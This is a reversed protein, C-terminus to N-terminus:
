RIEGYYAQRYIEALEQVLPFRPNTITTQDEFAKEALVPIEQLFINEKVGCEAITMPMGLKKMLAYIAQCLNDVGEGVTGAPLGLYRAIQRYREAAQFYEYKAFPVFKSPL